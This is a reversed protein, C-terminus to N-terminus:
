RPLRRAAHVAAENLAIAGQRAESVKSALDDAFEPHIIRSEVWHCVDIEDSTWPRHVQVVVMSHQKKVRVRWKRKFSM